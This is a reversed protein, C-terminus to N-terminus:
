AQGQEKEPIIGQRREEESLLFEVMEKAHISILCELMDSTNWESHPHKGDRDTHGRHWPLLAELRKEQEATTNVVIALGQM